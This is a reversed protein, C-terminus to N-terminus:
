TKPTALRGESYVVQDEISLRFGSVFFLWAVRVDIRAAFDGHTTPLIFDFRPAYFLSSRSAARHSDVTVFETANRANWCIETELAGALRVSRFLFSKRVTVELEALPRWPITPTMQEPIKVPQYPNLTAESAAM